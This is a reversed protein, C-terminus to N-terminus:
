ENCFGCNSIGFCCDDFALRVVVFGLAEAVTLSLVFVVFEDVAFDADAMAAAWRRSACRLCNISIFRFFFIAIAFVSEAVSVPSEM